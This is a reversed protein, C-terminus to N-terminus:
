CRALGQRGRMAYRSVAEIFASLAGPKALRAEEACPLDPHLRRFAGAYAGSGRGAPEGGLTLVAADDMACSPSRAKFVYGSIIGGLARAMEGGHGDLADTVDLSADAVGLVRIGKETVFHGIAPRPVGLGIAVEPCITILRFHAALAAVLDPHHKHAGDYRVPEGALCSSIAVTPQTTPTM